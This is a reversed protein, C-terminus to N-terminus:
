LINRNYGFLADKDEDSLEGGAFLCKTTEIFKKAESKGRL